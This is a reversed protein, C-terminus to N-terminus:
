ITWKYDIKHTILELVNYTTAEISYTDRKSKFKELTISPALIKVSM